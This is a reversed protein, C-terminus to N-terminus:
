GRIHGPLPYEKPVELRLARNDEKFWALAAKAASKDQCRVLVKRFGEVDELEQPRGQLVVHFPGGKDEMEEIGLTVSTLGLALQSM